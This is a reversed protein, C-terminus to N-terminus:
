SASGNSPQGSANDRDISDYACVSDTGTTGSLAGVPRSSKLSDLHMTLDLLSSNM